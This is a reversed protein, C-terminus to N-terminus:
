VADQLLMETTTIKNDVGAVHAVFDGRHYLEHSMYWGHEKLKDITDYMHPDGEPVWRTVSNFLCRPPVAIHTQFEDPDMGKLYAKLADNDGSVALGKPKVFESMNWWHDLFHLSWETRRILWAGANWSEGKQRTLVLDIGTDKTPLFDEIRKNSNMIVTDADMWFVWDCDEETLLRRAARIKSWSPPRKRDLQDSENFLKYNHKQCYSQKNPWTLDLLNNFDRWRVLRQWWDAQAADTLTTLCIKNNNNNSNSNTGVRDYQPWPCERDIFNIPAKLLKKHNVNFSAVRIGGFIIIIAGALAVMVATWGLRRRRGGGNSSTGLSLCIQIAVSSSSSKQKDGGYLSRAAVM